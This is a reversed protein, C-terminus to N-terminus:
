TNALSDIVHEQQTVKQDQVMGEEASEVGKSNNAKGGMKNFQQPPSEPKLLQKPIVSM